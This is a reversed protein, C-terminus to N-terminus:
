SCAGHVATLPTAPHVPAASAHMVDHRRAAAQRGAQPQRGAQWPSGQKGTLCMKAMYEGEVKREKLFTIFSTFGPHFDDRIVRLDPMGKGKQWYTHYFGLFCYM